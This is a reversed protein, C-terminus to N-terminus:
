EGDTFGIELATEMLADTARDQAVREATSFEGLFSRGIMVEEWVVLMSAARMGYYTAASFIASSGM